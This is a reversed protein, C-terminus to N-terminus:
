TFAQLGQAKLMEVLKKVDSANARNCILTADPTQVVVLNDIGITALVHGEEAALICDTTDIGVHKCVVTNGAEDTPNHRALADWAGVDDWDFDAELLVVNSAKEMIGYDISTKALSPYERALMAEQDPTGLAPAIRELGAFLEPLFQEIAALIDKVRWVFNGSNWYYEGSAAFKEATPRDPKEKFAALEYAGETGEIPAGRHLYGYVTSPETPKIGFTVLVQRETALEAARLLAAQFRDPQGVVHDASMVAMTGEPDTARIMMAALGIAAATDRGVPEPVIQSPALQPLQAAMVQAQAANTIILISETPITPQLRSVTQQIMTGQGVIEILQKPRTLRSRPWFRTGSGGAMIIPHLM